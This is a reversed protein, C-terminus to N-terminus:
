QLLIGVAAHRDFTQDSRSRHDNSTLDRCLPIGIDLPDNAIGQFLDPVRIWLEPDVVLVGADQDTNVLLACIDSDSDVLTLTLLLSGPILAHHVSEGTIFSGLQHWQGDRQRMSQCAAEGLDAFRARDLSDTGVTLTLHGDLVQVTARLPDVGDDDAGLMEIGFFDFGQSLLDDILHDTWNATLVHVFVGGDVDIRRALEDDPPWLTIGSQRTSLDDNVSVTPNTPM